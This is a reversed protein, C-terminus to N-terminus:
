IFLKSMNNALGGFTFRDILSRSIPTYDYYAMLDSNEPSVGVLKSEDYENYFRSNFDLKLYERNNDHSEKFMGECGIPTTVVPLGYLWSDTIKRINNICM